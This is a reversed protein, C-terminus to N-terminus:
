YSIINIHPVGMKLLAQQQQAPLNAHESFIFNTVFMYNYIAWYKFLFEASVFIGGIRAWCFKSRMYAGGGGLFFFFVFLFFFANSLYLGLPKNESKIVDWCARPYHSFYKCKSQFIWAYAAGTANGGKLQQYFFCFVLWIIWCIWFLAYMWVGLQFWVLSQKFFTVIVFVHHPAFHSQWIQLCPPAVKPM